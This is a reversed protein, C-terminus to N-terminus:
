AVNGFFIVNEHMIPGKSHLFNREKAERYGIDEPLKKKCVHWFVM